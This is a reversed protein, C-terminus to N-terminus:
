STSEVPLNIMVQCRNGTVEGTTSSGERQLLIRFQYTSGPILHIGNGGLITYGGMVPVVTWQDAPILV